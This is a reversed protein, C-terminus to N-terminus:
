LMMIQGIRDRLHKKHKKKMKQRTVNLKVRDLRMLFDTHKKREPHTHVKKM